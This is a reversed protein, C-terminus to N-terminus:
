APKGQFYLDRTIKDLESVALPVRRRPLCSLGPSTELDLSRNSHSAWRYSRSAADATIEQAQDQDQHRREQEQRRLAPSPQHGRSAASRLVQKKNQQHGEYLRLTRVHWDGLGRLDNGVQGDKPTAVVTRVQESQAM